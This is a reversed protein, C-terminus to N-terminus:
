EFLADIEEQARENDSSICLIVHTGRVELIPNTLKQIEQPVYNEFGSRLEEVRTQAAQRVREAARVDVTSFVAVEEATAGTSAYVCQARVDEKGVNYLLAVAGGDLQTLTDQWSLSQVLQGAAQVPDVKKETQAGCGACVMALMAAAGMWACWRKMKQM